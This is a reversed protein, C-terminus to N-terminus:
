TSRTTSTACCCGSSSSPRHVALGAGRRARRRLLPAGRDQGRTFTPIYAGFMYFMGHAFNIVRLVGFILNLGSAIVFLFMAATLGSLSQAFVFSPDPMSAVSTVSRRRSARGGGARPGLGHVEHPRRVGGSEHDRVPVEPDKVTKGYLQGRNSQHDKERITQKGLPTDITIGLLAKSVKDSETTNAKKIAETLFQM